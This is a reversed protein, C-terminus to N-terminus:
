PHRRRRQRRHRGAGGVRRAYKARWRKKAKRRPPAQDRRGCDRGCHHWARAPYPNSPDPPPLQQPNGINMEPGSPRTLPKTAADSASVRYADSAAAFFDEM